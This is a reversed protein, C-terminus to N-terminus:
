PSWLWYFQAIEGLNGEAEVDPMKIVMGGQTSGPNPRAYGPMFFWPDTAAYGGREGDRSYLTATSATSALFWDYCRKGDRKMAAVASIATGEVPNATGEAVVPGAAPAVAPTEAEAALSPAILPDGLPVSPAAADYLQALWEPDYRRMYEAAAHCAERYMFLADELEMAHMKANHLQGELRVNENITTCFDNHYEILLPLAGLPPM